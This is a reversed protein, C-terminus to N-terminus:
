EIRVKKVEREAQNAAVNAATVGIDGEGETGAEAQLNEELQQVWKGGEAGEFLWVHSCCSM